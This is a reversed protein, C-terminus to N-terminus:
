CSGDRAGFEKLKAEILVVVGRQSNNFKQDLDRPSVHHQKPVKAAHKEDDFAERSNPYEADFPTYVYGCAL